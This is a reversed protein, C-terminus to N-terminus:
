YAHNIMQFKGCLYKLKKISKKHSDGYQFLLRYFIMSFFVLLSMIISKLTVLAQTKQDIIDSINLIGM